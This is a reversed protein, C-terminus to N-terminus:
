VGIHISFLSPLSFHNQTGQVDMVLFPMGSSPTPHFTRSFRAVPTLPISLVAYELALFSRSLVKVNAQL